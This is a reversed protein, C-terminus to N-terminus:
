RVCSPANVVSLRCYVDRRPSRKVLASRRCTAANRRMIGSECRVVRGSGVRRSAVLGHHQTRDPSPHHSSFQRRRRVAASLFDFVSRSLPPALTNAARPLRRHQRGLWDSRCNINKYNCRVIVNTHVTVFLVSLQPPTYNRSASERRIREAICVGIRWVRGFKLIGYKRGEL